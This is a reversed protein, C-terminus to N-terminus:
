MGRMIGRGIGRGIGRRFLGTTPETYEIYISPRKAVTASGTAHYHNYTAADRSDQILVIGNNTKSGDPGWSEALANSITISWLFDAGSTYSPWSFTGVAAADFDGVGECMKAGSGSSWSQTNYKAFDSCAAGIEPVGLSAGEGWDNAAVVSFAKGSSGNVSATSAIRYLDLRHLTVSGSPIQTEDYRFLHNYYHPLSTAVGFFFVTHAGFNANRNNLYCGTDEFSGPGSITVSPDIHVEGFSESWEAAVPVLDFIHYTKGLILQTGQPVLEVGGTNPMLMSVEPAGWWGYADQTHMYQVAEGTEHTLFRLARGNASLEITCGDPVAYGVRPYESPMGAYSYKENYKEPGIDVVKTGGEPMLNVHTVSTNTRTPTVGNVANVVASSVWLDPRHAVAAKVMGGQPAQSPLSSVYLQQPGADWAWQTSYGLGAHALAVDRGHNNSAQWLGSEGVFNQWNQIRRSRKPGGVLEDTWHSSMLPSAKNNPDARAQPPLALTPM